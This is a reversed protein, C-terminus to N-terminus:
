YTSFLRQLIFSFTLTKISPEGYVPRRQNVRNKGDVTTEWFKDTIDEWYSNENATFLFSFCFLYTVMVADGLVWGKGGKERRTISRKRHTLVFSQMFFPSLTKKQINAHHTCWARLINPVRGAIAVKARM